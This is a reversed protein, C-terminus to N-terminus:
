QKKDFSGKAQTKTQIHTSVTQKQKITTDTEIKTLPWLRYGLFLFLSLHLIMFIIVLYRPLHTQKEGKLEQRKKHRVFSLRHTYAVWSVALTYL